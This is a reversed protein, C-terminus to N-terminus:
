EAEEEKTPKPKRRTPKHEQFMDGLLDDLTLIDYGKAQKPQRAAEDADRQYSVHMTKTYLDVLLQIATLKIAYGTQHDSDLNNLNPDDIIDFLSAVTKSLRSEWEETNLQQHPTM